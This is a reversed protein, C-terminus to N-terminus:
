HSQAHTERPVVSLELLQKFESYMTAPMSIMVGSDDADAHTAVNWIERLRKLRGEKGHHQFYGLARFFGHMFGSRYVNAFYREVRINPDSVIAARASAAEKSAAEAIDAVQGQFSEPFPIPKGGIAIEGCRRCATPLESKEIGPVSAPAEFQFLPGGCKLCEASM